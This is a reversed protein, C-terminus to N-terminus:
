SQISSVTPGPAHRALECRTDHGAGSLEALMQLRPMAAGTSWAEALGHSGLGAAIQSVDSDYRSMLARTAHPGLRRLQEHAFGLLRAAEAPRGGALRLRAYAVAFRHLPIPAMAALVGVARRLAREAEALENSAMALRFAGLDVLCAAGASGSVAAAAEAWGEADGRTAASLARCGALM